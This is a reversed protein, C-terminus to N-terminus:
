ELPMLPQQLVGILPRAFLFGQFLGVGISRLIRYEGLTEIGEAVLKINLESCLSVMSRVIARRVVDTDIGRVLKMDLKIVDPRIDVLLGFSSYGAGFDDLAVTFGINQYATVIDRLRRPERVIEDETIEFMISENSLDAKRAAALSTALCRLPEYIANPKFNISLIAGANSLGLSAATKIATTRCRQDFSYRNANTVQSLIEGAGEGNLGRVLAEQAFVSGDARIIPQFAMTIPLM